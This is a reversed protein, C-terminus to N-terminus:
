FPSYSAAVEQPTAERNLVPVIALDGSWNSTTDSTSSAGICTQTSNLAGNSWTGVGTVDTGFQVGNFYGRLRNNSLSGTLVIYMWDTNSKGTIAVVKSTGGAIYFLDIEGNTAARRLFIRNSADIFFISLYRVVGDTWVGAGSVKAWIGITFERGNFDTNLGASYINNVSVGGSTFRTATSGDGIGPVGLTVGTYAGDHGRGSIDKSVTGSQENQPWFGVISSGFLAKVKQLYSQTDNLMQLGKHQGGLYPRGPNLFM